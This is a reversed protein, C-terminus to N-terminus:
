LDIKEFRKVSKKMGTVTLLAFSVAGAAFVSAQPVINGFGLTNVAELGPIHHLTEALVIVLMSVAIYAIFPKGFYYATRFFGGIFIRNFLGFILLSFGLFTLNAGMLANSTYVMADSLFLMRVLTFVATMAFAFGEILVAFCFKSKVADAKSVPLLLTYRIDNNERTSQFSYFIGLTTFFSGLLVPYGPVFTLLVAATFFYSLPSAALKLEKYILKKM